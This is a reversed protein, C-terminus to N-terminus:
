SRWRGPNGERGVWGLPAGAQPDSIEDVGVGAGRVAKDAALYLREFAPADRDVAKGHARVPACQDIGGIQGFVRLGFMDQLGGGVAQQCCGQAPHPMVGGRDERGQFAGQAAARAPRTGPRAPQFVQDVEDLGGIEGGAALGKAERMDMGMEAGIGGGDGHEGCGEAAWGEAKGGMAGFLEVRGCGEGQGFFEVM